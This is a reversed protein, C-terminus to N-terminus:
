FVWDSFVTKLGSLSSSHVINQRYVHHCGEIACLRIYIVWAGRKLAPHTDTTEREAETDGTPLGVCKERPCGELGWHLLGHFHSRQESNFFSMNQDDEEAINLGM